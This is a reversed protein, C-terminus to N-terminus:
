LTSLNRSGAGQPSAPPPHHRKFLEELRSRPVRGVVVLPPQRAAVRASGAFRLEDIDRGAEAFSGGDDEGPEPIPESRGDVRLHENSAAGLFV